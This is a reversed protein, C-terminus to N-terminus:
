RLDPRESFHFPVVIDDTADEVVGDSGASSEASTNTMGNSSDLYMM